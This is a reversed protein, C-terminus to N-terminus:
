PCTVFGEWDPLRGRMSGHRGIAELGGVVGSNGTGLDDLSCSKSASQIHQLTKCAQRVDGILHIRACLVWFGM